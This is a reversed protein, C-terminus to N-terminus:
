SCEKGVRREESRDQLPCAAEFALAAARTAGIPKASFQLRVGKNSRHKGLVENDNDRTESKDAVPTKSVQTFIAM